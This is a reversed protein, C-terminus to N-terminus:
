GSECGIGDSDCDFFHPDPPNVPFRFYPIGKAGNSGAEALNGGSGARAPRAKGGTSAVNMSEWGSQTIISLFSM